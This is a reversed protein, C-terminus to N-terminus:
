NLGRGFDSRDRFKAPSGRFSGRGSSENIARCDRRAATEGRLWRAGRRALERRSSDGHAAGPLPRAAMEERLRAAVQRAATSGHQRAAARAATGHRRAATGGRQQRPDSFNFPFFFFSYQALVQLV